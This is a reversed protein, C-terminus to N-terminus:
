PKSLILGSELGDCPHTKSNFGVENLMNWANVTGLISLTFLRISGSWPVFENKKKIIFSSNPTVTVWFFNLTFTNLEMLFLMSDGHWILTTREWSKKTGRARFREFIICYVPLFLHFETTFKTKIHSIFLFENARMESKRLLFISVSYIRTQTPKTALLALWNHKFAFFYQQIAKSNTRFDSWCVQSIRERM